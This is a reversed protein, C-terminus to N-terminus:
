FWSVGFVADKSEEWYIFQKCEALTYVKLLEEGFTSEGKILGKTWQMHWWESGM